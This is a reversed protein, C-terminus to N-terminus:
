VAQVAQKKSMFMGIMGSADIIYSGKKKALSINWNVRM